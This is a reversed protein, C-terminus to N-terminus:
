EKCFQKLAAVNSLTQPHVAKRFEYLVIPNIGLSQSPWELGENSSDNLFPSAPTTQFNEMMNLCLASSVIGNILVNKELDQLLLAPGFMVDGRKVTLM